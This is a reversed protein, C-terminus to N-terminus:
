PAFNFVFSSESFAIGECDVTFFIILLKGSAPLIHHWRKLSDSFWMQFGTLM